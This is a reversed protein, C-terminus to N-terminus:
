RTSSAARFHHAETRLENILSREGLGTALSRAMSREVTTGVTGKLTVHGREVIIHIPPRAMAAYSWFSPHGYIARAVRHRLGDDEAGSPLVLIENRLARVGDLRSVRRAIEAKKAEATVKGTLVISEGDVRVDVDDFITVHPSERITRAVDGPAVAAPPSQGYALSAMASCLAFALISRSNM